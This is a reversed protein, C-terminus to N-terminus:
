VAALPKATSHQPRPPPLVVRIAPHTYGFQVRQRLAFGDHHGPHVLHDGLLEPPAHLPHGLVPPNCQMADFVLGGVGAGLGLENNQCAAGRRSLPHGSKITSSSSAYQLGLEPGRKAAM